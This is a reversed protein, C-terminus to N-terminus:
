PLLWSENDKYLQGCKGAKLRDQAASPASAKWLNRGIRVHFHDQHHQGDWWLVTSSAMRGASQQKGGETAPNDMNLIVRMESSTPMHRTFFAQQAAPIKSWIAPESYLPGAGKKESTAEAIQQSRAWLANRFGDWLMVFRSGANKALLILILARNLDIQSASPKGFYDADVKGLKPIGIDADKGERHSAHGRFKLIGDAWEPSIDKIGWKTQSGPSNWLEPIGPPRDLAELFVRFAATSYHYPTRGTHLELMLGGQFDEAKNEILGLPNRPRGKAKTSGTSVNGEEARLECNTREALAKMDRQKPPVYRNNIGTTPNIASISDTSTNNKPVSGVGLLRPDSYNTMNGFTVIVETGPLITSGQYDAIHGSFTPYYALTTYDTPGTPLPLFAHIEPIRVKVRTVTVAKEGDQTESKVSTLQKLCVGRFSQQSLIKNPTYSDIMAQRVQKLGTSLQPDILRRTENNNYLTQNVTNNYTSEWESM